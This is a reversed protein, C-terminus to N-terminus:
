QPWAQGAEQPNWTWKSRFHTWGMWLVTGEVETLLLQPKWRWKKVLWNVCSQQLLEITMISAAKMLIKRLLDGRLLWNLLIMTTTVAAAWQFIQLLRTQRSLISMFPHSMEVALIGRSSIRTMQLLLLQLQSPLKLRLQPLKKAVKSWGEVAPIIAM